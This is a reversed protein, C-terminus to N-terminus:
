KKAEELCVTAAANRKPIVVVREIRGVIAALALVAVIAPLAIYASTGRGDVLTGFIFLFLPFHILYLTYSFGATRALLQVPRKNHTASASLVRALHLAFWAGFSLEFLTMGFRTTPTTLVYAFLAVTSVLLPLRFMSVRRLADAAHLMSLGCGALWVVGLIAFLPNLAIGAVLLPVALWAARFGTIALAAAGFFVYYWVEYSLSWLPGNASLTPGVFENLFTATGPLGELSFQTRASETLFAHSGSAFAYPALLYLAIVLVLCTLFPPVIRNVRASAFAGIHLGDARFSSALSKHIFFGSLVFFAMVSAAGVLSALRALPGTAFFIHDAHALMVAISSGGRWADFYTSADPTIRRSRSIAALIM